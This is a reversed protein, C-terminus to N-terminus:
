SRLHHKSGREARSARPQISSGPAMAAGQYSDEFCIRFVYDYVEGSTPNLTQNIATASPSVVTIKADNMIQYSAASAGSTFVIENVEANLFRAVTKRGQEYENSIQFSLDYDGRHINCSTETYYSVVADIVSQPKLTTAGNDLYVLPHNQMMKGNLMPFDKRIEHVDLM